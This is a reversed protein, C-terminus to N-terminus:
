SGFLSVRTFSLDVPEVIEYDKDLYVKIIKNRMAVYTAWIGPHNQKLRRAKRYRDKRKIKVPM